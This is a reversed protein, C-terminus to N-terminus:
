FCITRAAELVKKPFGWKEGRSKLKRARPECVVLNNTKACNLKACNLIKACNITKACNLTQALSVDDRQFYFHFVDEVVFRFGSVFAWINGKRLMNRPTIRNSLDEVLAQNSIISSAFM